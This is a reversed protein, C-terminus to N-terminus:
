SLSSSSGRTSVLIEFLPFVVYKQTLVKHLIIIYRGDKQSTSRLKKVKEALFMGYTVYQQILVLVLIKFFNPMNLLGSEDEFEPLIYLDDAKQFPVCSSLIKIILVEVKSILIGM